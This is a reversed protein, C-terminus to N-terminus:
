KAAPAQQPDWGLCLSIKDATEKLVGQVTDRLFAESMEGANGFVSIAAYVSSSYQRIPYSICKLGLECEEDDIAFGQERVQELERLLSDRETITYKTCRVLGKVSIYEEIEASSRASLLVKGSGTAHLPAQKGIYQLPTYAPHPHDICDLYICFYDREVVLCVGMQLMNALQAVFPRAINRLSLNTNLHETLRCLKWTLGYRLTDEEQYVYNANQLTRLYRLVTPQTMGSREALEQLRMPTRNEAVCELIALLKDSSLSSQREKTQNAM